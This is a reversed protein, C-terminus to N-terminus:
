RNILKQYVKFTNDAMTDANCTEIVLKYGDIGYEFCKKEDNILELIADGLEQYNEPEVLISNKRQQVTYPIGHTKSSIVPKKFAFGELPTLPSLEWRSPLVLFKSQAYASIVEDRSPNKIITVNDELRLEKVMQFMEKEFGFDVGMIVTKVNSIGPSNKIKHIARLLVDVGKVKSFRGVFLIFEDNINYRSKFDTRNSSLENLDIGNRVIEIKSESCFRLFIEKEYENAVIVKSSQNVIYRIMPNQIKILIRKIVSSQQLDPHTTLGGQDSIVLPIRKRKSILAAILSQFSRVGVAHIIDHDDKLMQFYMGPNVYFLFLSFWVHARKIIFRGVREERPLDKNFTKPNNAFDLDTTYITVQHDNKTLRNAIHVCLFM